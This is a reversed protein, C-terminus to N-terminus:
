EYSKPIHLRQTFHIIKLNLYPTHKFQNLLTFINKSYTSPLSCIQPLEFKTFDETLSNLLHILHPHTSIHLYQQNNLSFNINILSYFHIFIIILKYPM